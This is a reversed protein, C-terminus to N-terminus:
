HEYGVTDTNNVNAGKWILHDINKLPGDDVAHFLSSWRRSLINSRVYSNENGYGENDRAEIDAGRDLLLQLVAFKQYRTALILPTSDRAFYQETTRADIKAGAALLREVESVDGNLAAHHLATWGDEDVADIDKTKKSSKSM